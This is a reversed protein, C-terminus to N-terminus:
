HIEAINKDMQDSIKKLIEPDYNTSLDALMSKGIRILDKKFTVDPEIVTLHKDALLDEAQQRYKAIYEDGNEKCADKLMQKDGDSLSNWFKQSCIISGGAYCHNTRIVYKIMDFVGMNKINVISNDLGDATRQQLALMVESASISVPLAGCKQYFMIIENLEPTRIKVGRFDKMSYIPKNITACLRFENEANGIKVIGSSALDKTIKENIWGGFYIKDVQDYTTILFPTWAWGINGTVINIEMDGCIAMDVIGMQVAEVLERSNGQMGAAIKNAVFRGNSKATLTQILADAQQDWMQGAATVSAAISCSVKNDSVGTTEEQSKGSCGLVSFALILVSCISITRKRLVMM